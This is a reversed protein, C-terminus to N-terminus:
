VKGDPEMVGLDHFETSELQDSLIRKQKKWDMDQIDDLSAITELVQTEKEMRSYTTNAAEKSLAVLSKKAEETVTNIGLLISIIGIASSSILILISFWIILKTKISKM